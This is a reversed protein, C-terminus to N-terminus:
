GMGGYWLSVLLSSRLWSYAWVVAFAALVSVALIFEVVRLFSIPEDPPPPTM